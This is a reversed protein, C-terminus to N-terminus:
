MMKDKMRAAIWFQRWWVYVYRFESDLFVYMAPKRLPKRMYITTYQNDDTKQQGASTWKRQKKNHSPCPFSCASQPNLLSKDRKYMTQQRFLHIVVQNQLEWSMKVKNKKDLNQICIFKCVHITEINAHPRSYIVLFLVLFCASLLCFM